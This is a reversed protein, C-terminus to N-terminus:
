CVKGPRCSNSSLSGHQVMVTMGYNTRIRLGAPLIHGGQGRAELEVRFFPHGDSFIWTSVSDLFYAQIGM